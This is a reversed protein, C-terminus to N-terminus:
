TRQRHPPATQRDLERAVASEVDIADEDDKEQRSGEAQTKDKVM